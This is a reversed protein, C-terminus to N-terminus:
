SIKGIIEQFSLYGTKNIDFLDFLKRVHEEIYRGTVIPFLIDRFEIWDLTKPRM